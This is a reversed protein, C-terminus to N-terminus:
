STASPTNLNPNARPVRAGVRELEASLMSDLQKVPRIRFDRRTGVSLGIRWITRATTAMVVFRDDAAVVEVADGRRDRRTAPHGAVQGCASPRPRRAPEPHHHLAPAPELSEVFPKAGAVPQPEVDRGEVGAVQGLGADGGQGTREGLM